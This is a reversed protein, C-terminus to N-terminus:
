KILTSHLNKLKWKGKVEVLIVTEIWKVSRHMSDMTFESNLQYTAWATNNNINTSIFEFQNIRKFNASTNQVIAKNILTDLNWIQGYEILRMDTACYNRLAVSDRNSLAEFMNQIAAQVAQQNGTPATQAHLQVM